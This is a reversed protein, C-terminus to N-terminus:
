YALYNSFQKVLMDNVEKFHECVFRRLLFGLGMNKIKRRISFSLKIPGWSQFRSRLQIPFKDGLNEEMYDFFPLTDVKGGMWKLFLSHLSFELNEIQFLQKDFYIDICPIEDERLYSIILIDDDIWISHFAIKHIWDVVKSITKKYRIAHISEELISDYIHSNYAAISEHAYLHSLHEDDDINFIPNIYDSPILILDSGWILGSSFVKVGGTHFRKSGNTGFKKYNNTFIFDKEALEFKAPRNLINKEHEIPYKIKKLIRKIEVTVGKLTYYM